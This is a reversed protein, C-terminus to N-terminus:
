VTIKGVNYKGDEMCDATLAMKIPNGNEDYLALVAGYDGSPIPKDFTFESVTVAQEKWGASGAIRGIDLVSGDESKLYLKMDYDRYSPAWGLNYMTLKGGNADLELTEPRFWYGLRNACYETFDKNKSYFRGPYDHFGGYTAKTRRLADMARYGNGWCDDYALEAHAFEIDVPIRDCFSDFLRADRLTDYSQGTRSPGSVCISDDRIGIGKGLCYNILSDTFLGNNHRLMDDNILVLKNPFAAKTMDIHKKLEDETYKGNQTHGEGYRGFTGVDFYELRPDNGYKEGLRNLAEEVYGLFIPDNYYPEWAKGPYQKKPDFGDFIDYEVGKAGAQRVYEPTARQNNGWRQVDTQFTCMRMSFSYGKEGWEDMIRDLYSFDYVGKEPNIDVWDFRLYLQTLGPFAEADGILEADDRYRPRSYGCDIFHWYWGKHPNKLITKEDRLPYIDIKNM